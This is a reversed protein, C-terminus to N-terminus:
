VSLINNQFVPLIDRNQLSCKHKHPKGKIQKRWWLGCFGTCKVFPFSASFVFGAHLDNSGMPEYNLHARLEDLNAFETSCAECSVVISRFAGRKRASASM